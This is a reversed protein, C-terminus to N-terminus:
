EPVPNKDDIASITHTLLKLISTSEYSLWPTNSLSDRLALAEEYKLEITIVGKLPYVAKIEKVRTVNYKISTM